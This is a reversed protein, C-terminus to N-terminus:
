SAYIGAPMEREEDYIIIQQSRLSVIEMIPEVAEGSGRGSM